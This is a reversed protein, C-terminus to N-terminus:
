WETNQRVWVVVKGYTKRPLLTYLFYAALNYHASFWVERRTLPPRCRLPDYSLYIFNDSEPGFMKQLRLIHYPSSILGVSRANGAGSIEAIRALNSVSDRSRDEVLIDEQPVGQALLYSAMLRAGIIGKDPRNGGAVILTAVRNDQYIGLGAHLRRRTEANLGTFSDDFDNFLIAAADLSRNEGTVAPPYLFSLPLISFAVTDALILALALVTFRFIFSVKGAGPQAM